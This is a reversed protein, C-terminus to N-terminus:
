NPVAFCEGKVIREKGITYTGVLVLVRGKAKPEQASKSPHKNLWGEMMNVSRELFDYAAAAPHPKVDPKIDQEIDPKIGPVDSRIHPKIDPKIDPAEDGDRISDRESGNTVTPKVIGDQEALALEEAEEPCEGDPYGGDVNPKIDEDEEGAVDPKVDEEEEEPLYELDGPMEAEEEEEEDGAAEAAEIKPKIDVDDFAIKRALEACAQIVLPQPPFCYQPNLYTTDLYM